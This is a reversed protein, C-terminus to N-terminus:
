NDSVNAQGRTRKQKRVKRAIELEDTTFLLMDRNIATGGAALAQRTEHLEQITMKDMRAIAEEVMLQEADTAEAPQTTLGFNDVLVKIAQVAAAPPTGKDNVVEVLKKQCISQLQTRTFVDQATEEAEVKKVYNRAVDPSLGFQRTVMGSIASTTHSKLAHRIFKKLEERQDPTLRQGQGRKDFEPGSQETEPKSRPRESRQKPKVPADLKAVQTADDSM